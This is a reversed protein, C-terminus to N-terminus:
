TTPRRGFFQLELEVGESEAATEGDGGAIYEISM